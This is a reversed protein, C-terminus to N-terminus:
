ARDARCFHAAPQSGHDIANKRLSLNEPQFGLSNERLCAPM